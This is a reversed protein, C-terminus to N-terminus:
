SGLLLAKECLHLEHYSPQPKSFLQCAECQDDSDPYGNVTPVNHWYLVLKMTQAPAGGEDLGACGCYRLSRDQHCILCYILTHVPKLVSPNIVVQRNM